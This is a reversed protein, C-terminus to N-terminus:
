ERGPERGAARSRGYFFGLGAIGSLLLPLAAPLPVFTQDTNVAGFSHPRAQTWTFDEPSRGAGTLQLSSGVPTNATEAVLIDASEMGAAPGDGATFSGEYSIFQIVTDAADVLAVGDPEGNQMVARDFGLALTGFGAQQDPLSGNLVETRYLMGSTGNYLVLKWGTLDVGAHGAIEIGEQTDAGQNDYHIENIFVTSPYADAWATSLATTLLIKAYRATLAGSPCPMVM